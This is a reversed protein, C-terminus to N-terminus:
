LKPSINALTRRERTALCPSWQLLALISPVQYRGQKGTNRSVPEMSASGVARALFDEQSERTALCPSWQLLVLVALNCTTTVSERTALCPSWQLECSGDCVGRSQGKGHQSVRAGNFCSLILPQPEHYRRERTALCPSWQLRASHDATRLANRSERTALCPSWQLM